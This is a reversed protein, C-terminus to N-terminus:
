IHNKFDHVQQRIINQSSQLESFNKEMLQNSIAMLEADRKKNQYKASLSVAAITGIITLIIFFVSLITSIQLTLFSETLIMQTLVSMVIYSLSTIILILIVGNKEILQFKPFVKSFVLFIIIQVGKLVLLFLARAPGQNLILPIGESINLSKGIIMIQSYSILYDLANVFFFCIIVATLKYIFKGTTIMHVILLSIIMAFIVTLFSFAQWQNMLTVIVTYVVSGITVFLWHLENKYKKGLMEGSVSIIIFGEVFTAFLELLQYLFATM